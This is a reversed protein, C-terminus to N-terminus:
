LPPCDTQVNVAFSENTNRRYHIAVSPIVFNAESEYLTSTIKGDVEGCLRGCLKLPRDFWTYRLGGGYQEVPIKVTGAATLAKGFKVKFCPSDTHSAIINFGNVEEGVTFAIVASGNRSVYYRGNKEITFPKKEDLEIFNNASLIAKVEETLHYPTKSKSLLNLIDNM